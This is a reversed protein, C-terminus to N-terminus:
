KSAFESWKPTDFDGQTGYCNDGTRDWGNDQASGVSAINADHVRKDVWSKAETASAGSCRMKEGAPMVDSLPAKSWEAPLEGAECAPENKCGAAVVMVVAGLIWRNTMVVTVSAVREGKGRNIQACTAAFHSSKPYSPPEGAYIVEASIPRGLMELLQN